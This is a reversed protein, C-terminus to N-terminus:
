YACKRLLIILRSKNCAKTFDYLSVCSKNWLNLFEDLEDMSVHHGGESMVFLRNMQISELEWDEFTTDYLFKNRRLTETVHNNKGCLKFAGLWDCGEKEMM